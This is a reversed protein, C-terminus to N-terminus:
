MLQMDKLLKNLKQLGLNRWKCFTSLIALISIPVLNFLKNLISQLAQYDVFLLEEGRKGLNNM